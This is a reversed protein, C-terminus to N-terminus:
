RIALRGNLQNDLAAIKGDQIVLDVDRVDGSGDPPNGAFPSLM